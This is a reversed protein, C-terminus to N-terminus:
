GIKNYYFAVEETPRDDADGSAAGCSAVTVGTLTYTRGGAGLQLQPYRAGVRCGAWPMKTKVRFTGQAPPQRLGSWKKQKTNDWKMPPASPASATETRNSHITIKEDKGTTAAPAAAMTGRKLTVDSSKPRAPAAAGKLTIEAEGPPPPASEGEEVKWEFEVNGGKKGDKTRSSWAVSEVNIWNKHDKSQSDGPVGPIKLFYDVSGAGAPTAIVLLSMAAATASVRSLRLASTM